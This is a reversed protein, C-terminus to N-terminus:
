PCRGGGGFVRPYDAGLYDLDEACSETGREEPPLGCLGCSRLYNCYSSRLAPRDDFDYLLAPFLGTAFPLYMDMSLAIAARDTTVDSAAYLDRLLGFPPGEILACYPTPAGIQQNNLTACNYWQSVIARLGASSQPRDDWVIPPTYAARHAEAFHALLPDFTLTGPQTTAVFVRYRDDRVLRREESVEENDGSFVMYIRDLPSGDASRINPDPVLALSPRGQAHTRADPEFGVSTWRPSTAERILLEVGLEGRPLAMAAGTVPFGDSDLAVIGPSGREHSVVVDGTDREAPRPDGWGLTSGDASWAGEIEILRGEADPVLLIVTAGGGIRALAPVQGLSPPLEVIPPAGPVVGFERFRSRGTSFDLAGHMVSGGETWAVVFRSQRKGGGATAYELGELAVAWPSVFSGDARTAYFTDADGDRLRHFCEPYIPSIRAPCEDCSIAGHVEFRLRLSGDITPARAFATALFGGSIAMDGGTRATATGNAAVRADIFDSLVFGGSNRTLPVAVPLADLTLDGDWDISTCTRPISPDRPGCPVPPSPMPVPCVDRWVRGRVRDHREAILAVRARRRPDLDDRFPCREDVALTSLPTDSLLGDSFSVERVRAGTSFDGFHEFAYSIRSVYPVPGDFGTESIESGDPGAHGLCGAHGLEHVVSAPAAAGVQMSGCRAGGGITGPESVASRFLWRRSATLTDPWSTECDAEDVGDSGGWDGWRAENAAVTTVPLTDSDFHAFIGTSGDRNRFGPIAAFATAMSELARQSHPVARTCVSGDRQRYDIEAFLDYRAPDAGYRPLETLDAGAGYTETSDPLARM